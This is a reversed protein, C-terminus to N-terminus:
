KEIFKEQLQDKLQEQLQKIVDRKKEEQRFIDLQILKPPKIQKKYTKLVTQEFKFEVRRNKARNEPTNNLVVPKTDAYGVAMLRKPSVGLVEMFHRIVSIARAASLEWNSPYIDSKIPVNDTHGEVVLTYDYKYLMKKIETLLDFINPSLEASAIEFLAKGRIRLRIGDKEMEIDTLGKLKKKKILHQIERFFSLKENEIEEIINPKVNFQEPKKDEFEGIEERQSGFADKLSGLMEKFKQADTNAFSLLLVFFTLLLTVMDAFTVMWAPAGEEAEESEEEEFSKRDEDM